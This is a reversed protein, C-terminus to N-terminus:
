DVGVGALFFTKSPPVHGIETRERSGGIHCYLRWTIPQFVKQM